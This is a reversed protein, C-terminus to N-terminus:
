RPSHAGTFLDNVPVGWVDVPGSPGLSNTPGRGPEPPAPSPSTNM